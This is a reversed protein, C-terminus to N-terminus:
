INDKLLEELENQERKSLKSFQFTFLDLAKIQEPSLTINKYNNFAKMTIPCLPEIITQIASAYEKIEYQANKSNRLKIFNLLNHLDISFYFETYLSLPLNIRAIERSVGEKMLNEYTSYQLKNYETTNLLLNKLTENSSKLLNDDASLQKNLKSQSSVKDPIYIDEKLESYRGSIENYNGMRHRFWQRVVFIPAKVHFKFKVMEFPSTHKHKYLYNILKSDTEHNKLGQGYSVRAAQVIASDCMLKRSDLPIIRPMCDILKVFGKDLVKKNSFHLPIVYSSM